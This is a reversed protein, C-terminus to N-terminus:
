SVEALDALPRKLKMALHDALRTSLALITLTPNAWGATSFVSSGAVFLNDYGHVRCNHDVVGRRPDHHMRTTGMHHYGGIPHNSVTEDVPWTPSSDELWRSAHLDGFGLRWFEGQLIEALVRVTHKDIPLLQWDMTLRPVGLADREQSLTVRSSPNPAQEARVILSLGTIGLRARWSEAAPLVNRQAWNRFARFSQWLHRGTRNPALKHKLHLYVRTDIPVGREPDTQLKFTIATNLIRREKQVRASPVLVPAIATNQAIFRKRFQAWIAYAHRTDSRGLRGHPHEMFYRGVQDFDNGVGRRQVDSSALLLRANELGGCALVFVKAHVEGRKGTLTRVDVHHVAQGNRVAQVHVVNAHLVITVEPASRLDDCRKLGFPEKREDFRWFRTSLLKADFAPADLNLSGWVTADYDFRGLELSDHARRYYPMLEALGIPWGSEPVWERPEFDIDDLIACRGGWINTTGGFFRLRADVLPYYPMGINPGDYLSQTAKDFDAGGAELLCVSFGERRLNRALSVGAAGAGIVCADTRLVSGDPLDRLDVLMRQVGGSCNM